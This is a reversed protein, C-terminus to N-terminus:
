SQPHPRSVATVTPVGLIAKSVASKIPNGLKTKLNENEDQLVGIAQRTDELEKKLDANETELTKLQHYTRVWDDYYLKKMAEARQFCAFLSKNEKNLRQVESQQSSLPGFGQPLSGRGGPAM